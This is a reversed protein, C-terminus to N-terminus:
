QQEQQPESESEEDSDDGIEEDKSLHQYDGDSEGESFVIESFRQDSGSADAVGASEGRDSDGSSRNSTPLPSSTPFSAM